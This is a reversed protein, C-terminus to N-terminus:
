KLAQRLESKIIEITERKHREYAPHIFPRAPIQSTGFEIFKGYFYKVYGGEIGIQISKVGDKTRIKGVTLAKRLDGTKDKFATTNKMDEFIPQAGAKLANNEISKAKANTAELKEILESMGNLEIDAAM